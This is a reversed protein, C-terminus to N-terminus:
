STDLSTRGPEADTDCPTVVWQGEPPEYAVCDRHYGRHIFGLRRLQLGTGSISIRAIKAEHCHDILLRLCYRRCRVTVFDSLIASSGVRTFVCYGVSEDREFFEYAYYKSVPNDVFRWNLYDASRVGHIVAPDLAYDRRFRTIRKMALNRENGPLWCIRYIRSLENVLPAIVSMTKGAFLEGMLVPFQWTQYPGLVRWGPGSGFITSADNPVGIRTGDIHRRAFELLGLFVGQERLEASLYMDVAQMVTLSSGDASSFQRPLYALTGVITKNPDEAIFVRAVGDPNKLYKWATWGRGIGRREFLEEIGQFDGEGAERNVYNCLSV